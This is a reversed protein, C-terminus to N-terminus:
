RRFIQKLFVVPYVFLQWTEYLYGTTKFQTMNMNLLCRYFVIQQTLYRMLFLLVVYKTYNQTCLLVVFLGFVIYQSVPMIILLIKHRSKYIPATSVHRVKRDIWINLKDKSKSVTMAEHHLVVEVNNARATENIFLDDDGSAKNEHKEFGGSSVFLSKRYGMNRGVGMYPIGALAFSLYQVAIVFADFAFWQNWFGATPIIPSAGIVIEKKMLGEAMYLLWNVSRPKCDADTFVLHEYEAANIGASLARKKNWGTDNSETPEIRLTRIRSDQIETLVSQTDDNSRDDVVVVEFEIGKQSLIDPLNERLNAAENRAAIIVSVPDPKIGELRSRYLGARLYFFLYYFLSVGVSAIYIIFLIKEM